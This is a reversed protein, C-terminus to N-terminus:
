LALATLLDADKTPAWRKRYRKVFRHTREPDHNALATLAALLLLEPDGPCASLAQEAVLMSRQSRAALLTRIEGEWYNRDRKDPPPLPPLPPSEVGALLDDQAAPRRGRTHTTDDASRRNTPQDDM